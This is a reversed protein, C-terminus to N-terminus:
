ANSIDNNVIVEKGQMQSEAAEVVSVERQCVVQDYRARYGWM